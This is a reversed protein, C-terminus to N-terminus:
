RATAVLARGVILLATAAGLTVGSTLTYASGEGASLGGRLDLVVTRFVNYAGLVALVVAIAQCLVGALFVPVSIAHSM